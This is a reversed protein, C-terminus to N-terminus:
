LVPYRGKGEEENPLLWYSWPSLADQGSAPPQTKNSAPAVSKANAGESQLNSANIEKPKHRAEGPDAQRVRQTPLCGHSLEKKPTPAGAESLTESHM